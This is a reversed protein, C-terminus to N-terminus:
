KKGSYSPKDYSYKDDFYKKDFKGSEIDKISEEIIELKSNINEIEDNYTNVAKKYKQDNTKDLNRLAIMKRRTIQTRTDLLNNYLEYERNVFNKLEDNYKKTKKIEKVYDKMDSKRKTEKPTLGHYKYLEDLTMIEDEEKIIEKLEKKTIDNDILIDKVKEDKEMKKLVNNFDKNKEREIGHIKYLEEVSKTKDDFVDERKAETLFKTIPPTILIDKQLKSPMIEYTSRNKKIEDDLKKQERIQNPTLGYTINYKKKEDSKNKERIEELDIDLKTKRKYTPEKNKESLEDKILGLLLMEAEERTSGTAEMAEIVDKEKLREDLIKKSEKIFEKTESKKIKRKPKEEKKYYNKVYSDFYNKWDQFMSIKEEEPEYMKIEFKDNEDFDPYNLKINDEDAEKKIKKSLFDSSSLSQMPIKIKEKIPKENLNKPVGYYDKLLKNQKTLEEVQKKSELNREKIIKKRRQYEMLEDLSMSKMKKPEEVKDGKKLTDMFSLFNQAINTKKPFGEILNPSYLSLSTGKINKKLPLKERMMEETEDRDLESGYIKDKIWKFLTPREEPFRKYYAEKLEEEGLQEDGRYLRHDIGENLIDDEDMEYFDKVKLKKNKMKEDRRRDKARQEELKDVEKFWKENEGSRNYAKRNAREWKDQEDDELRAIKEKRRMEKIHEDELIKKQKNIEKQILFDVQKQSTINAQKMQKILEEFRDAGVEEPISQKKPGKAKKMIPREEEEEEDDIPMRKKPIAPGPAVTPIEHKKVDREEKKYILDLHNNIAVNLADEYAEAKNMGSKLNATLRVLYDRTFKDTITVDIEKFQSNLEELILKYDDINANRKNKIKDETLRIVSDVFSESLAKPGKINKQQIRQMKDLSLGAYPDVFRTKVLKRYPERLDEPVYGGVRKGRKNLYTSSANQKQIKKTLEFSM